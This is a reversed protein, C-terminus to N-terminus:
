ATSAQTALAASSDGSGAGQKGDPVSRGITGALDDHSRLTMRFERDGPPGQDLARGAHGIGGVPHRQFVQAASIPGRQIGEQPAGAVIRVLRFVQHLPIERSEELAVIERTDARVLASETRIQEGAQAVVEDTFHPPLLGLLAPAPRRQNGEIGLVGLRQAARRHRVRGRRVNGKVPVPGFGDQIPRKLSQSLLM